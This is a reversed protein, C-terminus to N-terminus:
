SSRQGSPAASSGLLDPALWWSAEPPRRGSGLARLVDALDRPIMAVREFPDLLPRVGFMNLARAGFAQGFAQMLDKGRQTLLWRPVRVTQGTEYVLDAHDSEAASPAFSPAARCCVLDCIEQLQENSLSRFKLEQGRHIQSRVLAPALDRELLGAFVVLPDLLYNEISHRQIQFIGPGSLNEHDHDILGYVVDGLGSSHLKDAWSIVKTKGGGEANKKRGIDVSQFVPDRWSDATDRDYALLRACTEFFRVDDESEVL